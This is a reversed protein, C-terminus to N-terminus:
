ENEDEEDPIEKVIVDGKCNPGCEYIYTGIGLGSVKIDVTQGQPISAEINFDRLIFTYDKDIANIRLIVSKFHPIEFTNPSLQNADAAVNIVKTIERRQDPDLLSMIPINPDITNTLNAYTSYTNQRKALNQQIYVLSLGLFLIVLFVIKSM